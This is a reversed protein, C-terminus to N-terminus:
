EGGVSLWISNTLDCFTAFTLYAKLAPLDKIESLNDSIINEIIQRRRDFEITIPNNHGIEYTVNIATKELDLLNQLASNESRNQMTLNKLNEKFSKDDVKEFESCAIGFTGSRNYVWANHNHLRHVQVFTSNDILSHNQIHLYLDTLTHFAACAYCILAHNALNHHLYELANQQHDTKEFRWYRGNIGAQAYKINNRSGYFPRKTQLLLNTGFTPLQRRHGYQRWIRGWHLGEAQHM